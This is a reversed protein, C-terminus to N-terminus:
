IACSCLRCIACLQLQSGCIACAIQLNGACDSIRLNRLAIQLNRLDESQASCIYSRIMILRIELYTLIGRVVLGMILQPIGVEGVGCGM